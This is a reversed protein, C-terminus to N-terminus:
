KALLQVIERTLSEHMLPDMGEHHNVVRGEQDIVFTAPIGVIKWTGAMDEDDFSVQLPSPGRGATWDRYWEDVTEREDDLSVAVFTVPESAFARSMADILPMAEMCPGCWTAWFDLVVVQGRLDELHLPEGAMDTLTFNPAGAGVMPHDSRPRTQGNPPPEARRQPGAPDSRTAGQLEQPSDPLGVRQRLQRRTEEVLAPLGGPVVHLESYLRGALAETAEPDECGLALARLLHHFAGARNGLQFRARGLHAQVTGDSSLFSALELVGVAEEYRGLQYLIWGKTDVYAGVSEAKQIEWDAFSDGPDIEMPNWPAGLFLELARDVAVLGEELNQGELSSMYAWENLLSPDEPTADRARTIAEVSRAGDLTSPQRYMLALERWYSAQMRPVDPVQGEIAEFQQLRAAVDGNTADRIADLKRLFEVETETLEGGDLPTLYPNRRLPVTWADDKALRERLRDSGKHEGVSNYLSELSQLVVADKRFKKEITELEDIVADQVADPAAQKNDQNFLPRCAILRWPADKLLGLCLEGAEDWAGRSGLLLTLDTRVGPHAPDADLAQRLLREAEALDGRYRAMDASVFRAEATLAPAAEARALEKDVVRLLDRGILEPTTVAAAMLASAHLLQGLPDQPDRDRLTRYEAEVLRGNRRSLSALEQYLRHAGVDHPYRRLAEQLTEVAGDIDGRDRQQMAQVVSRDADLVAKPGANPRAFAPAALSAALLAVLAVASSRLGPIQFTM